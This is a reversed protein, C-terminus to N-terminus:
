DGDDERGPGPMGLAEFIGAADAKLAAPDQWRRLAETVLRATDDPPAAGEPLAKPAGERAAQGVAEAVQGLTVGCQAALAGPAINLAAVNETVKLFQDRFSEAGSEDMGGMIGRM